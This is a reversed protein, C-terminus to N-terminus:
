AIITNWKILTIWNGNLKVNEIQKCSNRVHRMKKREDMEVKLLVQYM